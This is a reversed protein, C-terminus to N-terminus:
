DRYFGSKFFVSMFKSSFFVVHLSTVSFESADGSFKFDSYFFVIADFHRRFIEFHTSFTPRSRRRDRNVSQNVENFRFIAKRYGTNFGTYVRRKERPLKLLLKDVSLLNRVLFMRYFTQYGPSFLDAPIQNISCNDTPCNKFRNAETIGVIAASM